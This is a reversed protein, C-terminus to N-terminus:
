VWVVIEIRREREERRRMGLVAGAAAGNRDRWEALECVWVVVGRTVVAERRVGVGVPKRWMALIGVLGPIVPEGLRALGHRRLNVKARECVQAIGVGGRREITSLPERRKGM